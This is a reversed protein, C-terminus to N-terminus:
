SNNANLKEKATAKMRDVWYRSKLREEGPECGSHRSLWADLNQPTVEKWDKISVVPLGEYLCDLPSSPVLVINGCALAEWTRHCDLCAGHPSLVFAYEGYKKWVQRRPLFQRQFVVCENTLLKRRIEYRKWPAYASAPQWAFDIYVKRIRERAPRFERRLALFTKEQVEPSAAPEGWLAKESLTHFDIGIPIPSMRKMFGPGDCNQTFWHLVNPYELIQLAEAMIPLPAGGDSDGTVLVFRSRILPLVQKLFSKIWSFKVWVLAGDKIERYAGPNPILNDLLYPPLRHRAPELISEYSAGGPFEDPIRWDCLAAIGKNWVLEAHFNRTSVRDKALDNQKLIEVLGNADNAVRRIPLGFEGALRGIIEETVQETSLGEKLNAWITGAVPNLQFAPHGAVVLTIKGDPNAEIRAAQSIEM